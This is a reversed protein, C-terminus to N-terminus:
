GRRGRGRFISITFPHEEGRERLIHLAVECVRVGSKSERSFTGHHAHGHLALAPKHKDLARRLRSSGLLPFIPEPLQPDGHAM